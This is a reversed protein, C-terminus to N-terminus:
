QLRIDMMACLNGTLAVLINEGKEPVKSHCELAIGANETRFVIMNRKRRFTVEYDLGAKNMEKWADWGEFDEDKHVILRNDAVGATTCDSGDTRICAYEKYNNGTITGDDSSYLLIYSCHAVSNAVPLSKARYFLRMGDIVPLGASATERYGNVEVNPIDGDKRDYYHVEPAIRSINERNANLNLRTVSINRLSLHEGTIGAYVTRTSDPLAITADVFIYPSSIKVKAHDGICVAEIEYAVWDEEKLFEDSRRPKVDTRIERAKTTIRHGDMWIEGFEYYHLNRINRERRHGGQDLSDFLIIAPLAIKRDYGPDPRSEFRIKLFDGSLRIGDSVTEKYEDFHMRNVVTIDNRDAEDISEEEPERMLYETDHDILNVMINVIDPDYDLGSAASLTERVRGQALPPRSGTFSTMEDYANAVAAIRAELPIKEGKLGNPTGNGDYKEYLNMAVTKLYPMESIGSLLRGGAESPDEKQPSASYPEIKGVDHLAAACYIRFCEKEDLGMEQAIKRSYEAVRMSHGRTYRDRSDLTDAFSTIVQEVSRRLSLSKENIQRIERQQNIELKENMELIAFIYLVIGLGVIAMNTLSVGYYLAQVISALIPIVTFLLIPIGIYLSLKRMFQFIVSLQIFIALFPIVYSILFGPGRQYANGSNFFYYLGTFQSIIVMAWGVLCIVEVIRLRVPPKELGIENRSLDALYLNFAHLVSITMFFVLFNSIRVMWYGFSTWDGHYIYALRDSFLLISAAFELYTLALKRKRTLSRTILAFFGTAMCVSSMGLMIDLQNEKILEYM